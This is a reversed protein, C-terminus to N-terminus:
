NIIAIQIIFTVEPFGSRSSSEVYAGEAVSDAAILSIDYYLICKHQSENNYTDM